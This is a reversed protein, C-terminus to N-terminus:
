STLNAPHEAVAAARCDRDKQHRVCVVWLCMARTASRHRWGRQGITDAKCMKYCLMASIAISLARRNYTHGAPPWSRQSAAQTDKAELESDPSREWAPMSCAAWCPISAGAAASLASPPLAPSCRGEAPLVSAKAAVSRGTQSNQRLADIERTQSIKHRLLHLVQCALMVRTVHEHAAEHPSTMHICCATSHGWAWPHGATPERLGAQEM